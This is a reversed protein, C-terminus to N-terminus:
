KEKENLMLLLIELEKETMANIKQMVKDKTPLANNPVKPEVYCDEIRLKSVMVEDRDENRHEYLWIADQMVSEAERATHETYFDKEYSSKPYYCRFMDQEKDYCWLEESWWGPDDCGDDNKGDYTVRIQKGNKILQILKEKNM